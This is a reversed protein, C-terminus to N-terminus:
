ASSPRRAGRALRLRCLFAGALPRRAVGPVRRQRGRALLAARRHWPEARDMAPRGAPVNRFLRTLSARSPPSLAFARPMLRSTVLNGAAYHSNPLPGYSDIHEYSAQQTSNLTYAVGNRDLHDVIPQLHCPLRGLLRAFYGHLRVRYHRGAALVGASDHQGVAEGATMSDDDRRMRVMM